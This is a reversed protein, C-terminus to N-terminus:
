TPNCISYLRSSRVTSRSSIGSACILVHGDPQDGKRLPISVPFYRGSFAAFPALLSARILLSIIFPKPMLVSLLAGIM